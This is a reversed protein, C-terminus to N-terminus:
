LGVTLLQAMTAGTTVATKAQHTVWMTAAGVVIVIIIIAFIIATCAFQSGASYQLGLRMLRNTQKHKTTLGLGM